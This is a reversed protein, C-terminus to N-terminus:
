PQALADVILADVVRRLLATDVDPGIALRLGTAFILELSNAGQANHRPLPPSRPSPLQSAPPPAIVDPAVVVPVFGPPVKAADGESLRGARHLQRWTYFLSSSVGCQRYAQAVTYGPREALALVRLKEELSWRRHREPGALIEVRGVRTPTRSSMRGSPDDMGDTM